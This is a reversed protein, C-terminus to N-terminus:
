ADRTGNGLNTCVTRKDRALTDRRLGELRNASRVTVQEEENAATRHVM